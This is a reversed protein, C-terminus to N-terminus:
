IPIRKVHKPLQLRFLEDDLANNTASIKLEIYQRSGNVEDLRQRVPLWSETSIELEVSRYPGAAEIRPTLALTVISSGSGALEVRYTRQLSSVDSLLFTLFGLNSDDSRHNDLDGVMAQRLRPQYFVFSGGRVVIIREDPANMELRADLETSDRRIWLRGSQPTDVIGLQPYARHHNFRATLTRLRARAEGVRAIVCDLGCQEPTPKQATGAPITCVLMVGVVVLRMSGVRRRPRLRMASTTDHRTM